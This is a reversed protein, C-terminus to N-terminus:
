FNYGIRNTFILDAESKPQHTLLTYRLNGDNISTSMIQFSYSLFIKLKLSLM